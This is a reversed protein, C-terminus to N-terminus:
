VEVVGLVGGDILSYRLSVGGWDGHLAGEVEGGGVFDFGGRVLDDVGVVGVGAAEFAGVAQVLEAEVAFLVDDAVVDGEGAELAVVLGGGDGGRVEVFGGFAFGTRGTNSERVGHLDAGANSATNAADSTGLVPKNSTNSDRSSTLIRAKPEIDLLDLIVGLAEESIHM